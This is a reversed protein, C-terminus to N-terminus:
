DDVDEDWLSFGFMTKKADAEEGEEADEGIEIVTETKTGSGAMLKEELDVSTVKAFPHIYVKKMMM